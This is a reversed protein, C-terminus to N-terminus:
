RGQFVPRRKENFAALGENRDLSLAHARSEVQEAENAAAATVDFSALALRKMRSLSLPSKTALKDALADAAAQLDVDEVVRNVLGADAMEQASAMEGTFFLYNARNPGIKRVLRWSAGAGPMLGFNAHSDGLKASRAALVLDCALVLEMGGAVAVGNVAAIVPKPLAEIRQMLASARAIFGNVEATRREEPVENVFKLDAGACFARGEGSIIVVRISDDRELNDLAQDLEELLGPSLSNLEAPRNLRLWITADRRTVLLTRITM